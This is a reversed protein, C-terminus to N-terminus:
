SWRLQYSVSVDYTTMMGVRQMAWGLDNAANGFTVGESIIRLSDFDNTDTVTVTLSWVGNSKTGKINFDIHQLSYYLDADDDYYYSRYHQPNLNAIATNSGTDSLVKGWPDYGYQVALTGSDM